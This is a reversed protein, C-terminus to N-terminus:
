VLQYRQLKQAQQLTEFYSVLRDVFPQYKVLVGAEINRHQAAETFNASTVLAVRRDVVVCKAHLSSRKDTSESLSRPDYYLEPLQPWPWHKERFETGFRRVIETTLSTDTYKRSIDLYFVVRLSPLTSMRAALREFLREGNHISYCVLLVESEAQELLTHMVAATDATPVGPVDPGSLVLDFLSAPEPNATRAEAIAGVLLATQTPTFGDRFLQELCRELDGAQPGAIQQLAFRTIGSSLPGDRLSTALAHLAQSPLKHIIELM